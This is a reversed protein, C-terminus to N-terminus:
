IPATAVVRTGRGPESEVQLDGSLRAMRERMGALGWHGSREPDVAGVEFGRGDDAVVLSAKGAEVSLNVAIRRAAGHLAANALAERAVRLLGGAVAPPVRRPDGSSSVEVQQDSGSLTADAIARLEDVLTEGSAPARLDWIADRAQGLTRRAGEAIKRLADATSRAAPELREAALDIQRTVATFGAMLTDHVEGAIRTREAATAAQEQKLARIRQRAVLIVLALALAALGVVSILRTQNLRRQQEQQERAANLRTQGLLTEREALAVDAMAASSASRMNDGALKAALAASRRQLDYATAPDGTGAHAAAAVRLFDARAFETASAVLPMARDVQLRAARADGLMILAKAYDHRAVFAEAAGAGAPLSRIRRELASIAANREGAAAHALGLAGTADSTADYQLIAQGSASLRAVLALAQQAATKAEAPRGMEVLLRAKNDYLVTLGPFRPYDREIQRYSALAGEHDGLEAQIAAANLRLGAALDVQDTRDLARAARRLTRVAAVYDGLQKHAAGATNLSKGVCVRDGGRGCLNASRESFEIAQAPRGGLLAFIAGTSLIQGALRADGSRRAREAAAQVEGIVALNHPGPTAAMVKTRLRSLDSAPDALVASPWALATAFAAALRM